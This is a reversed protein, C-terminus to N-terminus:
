ISNPKKKTGGNYAYGHNNKIMKDNISEIDISSLIGVGCINKLLYLNALPRGYKDFKEFKIWLIKNSVMNELFNKASHAKEIELDRDKLTKLPKMEPSDYGLMRIKTKFNKGLYRFGITLTDGDYISIVKCYTSLNDLSFDEFQKCKNIKYYNYCNGM